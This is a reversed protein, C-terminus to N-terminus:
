VFKCCLLEYAKERVWVAASGESVSFEGYGDANIEVPPMYPNLINYFLEGSFEKNVYMWKNGGCSNTVLVALGSDEHEDGERTFGVVSNDDFYNNQKGYAYLSRAKCLRKIGRVPAIGDHAIGYYDGYFICPIGKEHLLILSYAAPKFWEPVFSCLAQGPQTDHNDVFTVANEAREGVLTDNFIAGMDFEGNSNAAKGFAFHLPVDFLSMSNEVVDLYHLLRDLEPSWYEGVTFFKKGRHKHMKKLWERYFDFSIHKVADLRFGDMGVTDLYWKGWETVAKVTEPNDTDLDAGMLYDFNGNERDTERNWCKGEFCFIGNRKCREDWDTGSFHSANWTFDSYKGVRGAFDFKTWATIETKECVKEERNDSCDEEAMITETGDAGMMHNLVVDSLVEIGEKQLAKVAKLYEDKTGYKTAKSGKQEFEGLDYTDYVDYGVSKNGAAGKYAPPLWVMNVGSEALERAQAKARKWHLGDEPLYWEFFQMMTKNDKM